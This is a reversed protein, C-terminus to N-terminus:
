NKWASADTRRAPLMFSFSAGEGVKGLVWIRGHHRDVIRLVSALGIIGLGDFSDQVHVREFARFLGGAYQMGIGNDSVRFAQEGEPVRSM